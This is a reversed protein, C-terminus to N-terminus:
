SGFLCLGKSLILLSEKPREKSPTHKFSIDLTKKDILKGLKKKTKEFGDRDTDVYVIKLKERNPIIAIYGWAMQLSELKLFDLIKNNLHYELLLSETQDEQRLPTINFLSFVSQIM